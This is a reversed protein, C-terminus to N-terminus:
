LIVPQMLKDAAHFPENQGILPVSSALEYM